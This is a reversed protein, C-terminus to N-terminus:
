SFRTGKWLLYGYAFLSGLLIVVLGATWHINFTFPPRKIAVTLSGFIGLAIVVILGDWWRRGTAEISLPDSGTLAAEVWEVNLNYRECERITALRRSEQEADPAVAFSIALVGVMMVLSGGIVLGHSAASEGALEGFVLAGWALGWLQNTCMLPATRGIGVYKASYQAFLDGVVWCFGGLFLWFLGPRALAVEQLLPKVGGRFAAALFGMTFLEGFTFVTVFSLPNMGSIYAKRYPLFMTGWLAAAGLAALIGAVDRSHEAPARQSSAYSLLIAGIVIAVSGGLVKTGVAVGGGHLERFFLWGWLLAVLSATNWLPFAIELGVDRIAFISLTNAVSWLGGALLAWVILHSKERLDQFIYGTGKLVTPLTWRAVFVGCVMGLSILFPSIGITVFKTPAEAAGL